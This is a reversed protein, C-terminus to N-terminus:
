VKIKVDFVIWPKTVLDFHRIKNTNEVIKVAPCKSIKINKCICIQKKLLIYRQVHIILKVYIQIGM